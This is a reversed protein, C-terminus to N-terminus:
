QFTARVVGLVAPKHREEYSSSACLAPTWFKFIDIFVGIVPLKPRDALYGIDLHLRYLLVSQKCKAAVSLDRFAKFVLHHATCSVGRGDESTTCEFLAKDDQLQEREQGTSSEWGPRIKARANKKLHARFLM